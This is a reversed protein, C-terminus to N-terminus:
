KCADIFAQILKISKEDKEYSFEPHWQVGVAFKQGKVSIAEVLGDVSIALVDINSALHKVTQHHYSNVADWM